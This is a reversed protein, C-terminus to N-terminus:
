CGCHFMGNMAKRIQGREIERTEREKRDKSQRKPWRVGRPNWKIWIVNLGLVTLEDLLDSHVTYYWPGKPAFWWIYYNVPLVRGRLHARRNTGYGYGLVWRLLHDRYAESYNHRSLNQTGVKLENEWGWGAGSPNYWYIDPHRVGFACRVGIPCVRIGTQPQQLLRVGFAKAAVDLFAFLFHQFNAEDGFFCGCNPTIRYILGLPDSESVPNGGTYAYPQGSQEVEPDVSTFQGTGPDYYRNVLYVLGTPDTYGGAYGFPTQSTLGGATQPNGWADYSTSATLGGSSSVIGRASGLSDTALYSIKGTALSVQEAPAGSDAYIYANASDTLLQSSTSDWTFNQTTASGGSPTFTASARLGAGGYAAGSMAAVTDTYATLHGAGDWTGSAITTGGQKATLREGDANYAYSTTTTGALLSSTLESAHDYSATAGTPITTLNGSADFSYSLPTGTGPTMSTIRGQADYSYTAPSGSSAPTDTESMIDGSPADSYSFGLLTGTANKLSISAPGGVPDYSTAITDGTAGLAQSTPLGDANPTITIKNGNFDTVSTLNGAKDYGYGVNHSTAWTASAPLPYTITTRNGDADYGYGVAQGAGNTASTLEGFSNYSFSSSGTGDTMATLRGEADYSSTVAHAASGSYSVSGVAGAPTYVYTATIGNPDTASHLNGGSDYSYSTTSGSPAAATAPSTESVTDGASDYSGTTQYAAQTPYSASNVAWPSSTECRATGSTNGDPPVAATQDGQPDYCFTTTSAASTGFGTTESTLRGVADYSDVTVQNPGGTSAPPGATQVVNGTGDYTYTTTEYGTQGAPAPTTMATTNGNADYTYTTADAALRNGYGAPYSTPCSAATLNNGAVGSPPVNETVNGDGDSCSLSVNGLPDTLLVAANDADYTTTTTFGRPDTVTTQNGSADYGYSTTRPTATAGSGGAQTVSTTQGDVDYATVTTYNGANATPLNGDPSTNSTELGDGNYGFTRAATESGNGDPRSVSTLDGASNYSDQAVVGNEGISACPLEPSPPAAACSITNGGLVVTNGQYLTYTTLVSSPTSSGPQYVGATSYLEHGAADYLSFTVGAPPASAPTTIAGGPAVAAPGTQSSSCPSAATATATCSPMGLATTRMTVQNGLPDTVSTVNGSSDYNYQTIKANGNADWADLLSGGNAVGATMIPGRDEESTLTTGGTWASAATLVGQTYADVFTNGDPDTTTVFGTGTSANMCDGATANVCYSFTTKYGAPDTQSTVRGQADYVNVTSDGADPGGPQANPDTITLLDNALQPNGTSGAGYTYTTVHGLPDTVKTLDSGTYAYTWQRGMPDTVAAVLGAASSGITLARGSASTITQCTSATSPCNGSGPLPSGYAVTLTDGAADKETQLAGASGYTLSLGPQPSYTYTGGNASSFSLTANIDQPLTCYGGSGAPQYPATCQGGSQPYFTVQSGNAQNITVGTAAPSVPFPSGTSAIVERLTNNQQDSIYLNGSPDVAVEPLFNFRAATAPGGDGSDGFGGTSSGAVTYIDGATMQQGWQTGNAAAIEQVRNNFDDAIYLNGSSDAAVTAPFNLLAKAAPGGDGAHGTSGATGAITYIDGVTMHQGWSAGGAAFVEQIRNNAADAIYLDGAADLAVGNPNQLLASTAKGGDGSSGSTGAASGAITYMDGATMGGGTSAPVEQVRNNIQDAIFLDGAGDVAIGAPDQLLASTALGGDGSSGSTGTASGAVTTITGTGAAVKQIRNNNADAIYLNGASDLGLSLPDDLHANTAAGGDGGIGPHGNANGAVTYVDGATMSIGFQSHSSAAIEQVRNNFSDAIFIDGQADAAAGYPQSLGATIAPGRNGDNAIAGGDGAFESVTTTSANVERIRNNGADLVYLDFSSDLELGVPNNFTASLAPGGDGSFNRSGNGAITYIDNATMAIGWETHTARAVEQVRNDGFDTIYLQIGNDSAIGTPDNLLANVATTGNASHGSAGTASGAVTYMHSATMSLGWQTGSAAPVEQIRNNNADAIFMDGLGSFSLGSPGNLFGATAVGGDGSIGATGAANGAVTYIDYASMSQGWQTGAEVPVEQVRNNGTDAIYLDSKSPVKSLATPQDLFASTAAGGDGSHGAGGGSHGAITYVDDVTMTGFGRNQGAVAPVELVRNNGTDAIYLNGAPDLEVGEPDNLLSASMPTGNPSAGTTGLENGVIVYMDGATMSIGWQTGTLGAVELIRNQASDAIYTNGGSARVLAGPAQVPASTASGGNGDDTRLGDLTYIDGPVPRGASLWTDWDDTWGYGMSGPAGPPVPTGAITQRQALQADYTRAFDLSPGFTAASADFGSETFDGNETDVPDAATAQIAGPAAPNGGGITAGVPVQGGTSPALALTSGSVPAGLLVDPQGAAGDSATYDASSAGGALSEAAVYAVPTFSGAASAPWTDFTEQAGCAPAPWGALASSSLGNFAPVALAESENVSAAPCKAGQGTGTLGGATGVGEVGNLWNKASGTGGVPTGAADGSDECNLSVYLGTKGSGGSAAYAIADSILSQGAAGALAPATGLIAVNGSIAPEWTAITSLADSPVSSSCTGGSSPDGIIIASYGAFQAQTMADWSAASAVTVSLGLAAAQTAEASSSGGNVGTQLILVSGSLAARAQRAAVATSAVTIATAGVAAATVPLLATGAATAPALMLSLTRRAATSARRHPRGRGVALRRCGTRQIRGRPARRRAGAATRIAHIAHRSHM